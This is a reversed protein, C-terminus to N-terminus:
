KQLERGLTMLGGAAGLAVGAGVLLACGHPPLFEPLQAAAAALQPRHTMLMGAHLGKLAGLALLGGFLGILGGEIFFPLAIATRTAGVLKMIEVQDRKLLYTMKLVAGVTFVAGLALLLAYAYGIAAAASAFGELDRAWELDADVAAVGPVAQLQKKLGALARPNRAEPRLAIEYSYPLPNSDMESALEYLDPAAEKLRALATEPTVLVAAAVQPQAALRVRLADATGPDVGYAAYATLSVEAEARRLRATLNHDVLRLAGLPVLALALVLIGFLTRWGGRTSSVWADEIAGSLLSILGRM